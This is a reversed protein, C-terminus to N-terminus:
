GRSSTRKFYKIRSIVDEGYAVQPNITGGSTLTQGTRLDVLYAAIKTTGIDVACGFLKDDPPIAAIMGFENLIISANGNHEKTIRQFVPILNPPIDVGEYGNTDLIRRVKQLDLLSENEDPNHLSIEVRKVVPDVEFNNNVSELQLRQLTALSEPPIQITCDSLIQTHPLGLGSNIERRQM